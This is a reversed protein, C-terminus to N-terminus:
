LDLIEGEAGVIVDPLGPPGAAFRAALRDLDADTRDPKHHALAVRRAGARAGLGVAYEAAAHGFSAEAAVEGALLFADHILLDAGAALDLAAPHYEGLGDPGPGLLTPCHDPIYTLVSHGDSVRYGYTRGGKHPVERAEVTFGEAKLQGPPLTGFTWDGRLGDPGIPFHPPSMGRALVSMASEASDQVPLLLTVRADARDGARFFPVGHVHDWHLHTLLIAGEFPRGDLLATARRLGTGADLILAPVAADHHAIAV